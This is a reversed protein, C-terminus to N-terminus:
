SFIERLPKAITPEKKLLDRNESVAADLLDGLAHLKRRKENVWGDVMPSSAYGLRSAARLHDDPSSARQAGSLVIYRCDDLLHDNKKV